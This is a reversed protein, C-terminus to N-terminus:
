SPVALLVAVVKDLVPSSSESSRELSDAISRLIHAYGVAVAVAFSAPDPQSAM